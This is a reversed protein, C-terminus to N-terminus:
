KLASVIAKVNYRMYDLYTKAPGDATLPVALDCRGNQWQVVIRNDTTLDTLYVQGRKAVIFKLGSPSATVRAGAPVPKGNAQHLVVLANHSRRVPFEVLMGSRAYPLAMEKVGKIEVDFPLEGPNPLAPMLGFYDVALAGISAVDVRM